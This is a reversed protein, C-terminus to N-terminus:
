SRIIMFGSLHLSKKYFGLTSIHGDQLFSLTGGIIARQEWIGVSNRSSGSEGRGWIDSFRNYFQNHLRVNYGCGATSTASVVVVPFPPIIIFFFFM